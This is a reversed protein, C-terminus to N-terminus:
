RLAASAARLRASIEAQIASLRRCRGGLCGARHRSAKRCDAGNPVTAKHHKGFADCLCCHSFPLCFRDYGFVASPQYNASRVSSRHRHNGPSSGITGASCAPLRAGEKEKGFGQVPSSRGQEPTLDRYIAPTEPEAPAAPLQQNATYLAHQRAQLQQGEALKQQVEEKEPLDACHAELESLEQNLRQCAEEAQAIREVGQKAAEYRLADTHNSLQAIQAELEQQRAQLQVAQQQLSEKQELQSRLQEREAEAQPLLGSRNYRVKNKLDRLQKGLQDGAGSEDGTTVLNNLRRRLSDDQTVPMDQLRIFGARTFVSREVGLLQQGCNAATLEPVELGTETEYARFEGFPIRGKTSREITINRDNWSIEMRGSMPEGSWPAFREKDALQTKTTQQRTDIGYLMASIFACWTSKGWENPANIINLGPKLTITQHSLKGFTATMSYIKM